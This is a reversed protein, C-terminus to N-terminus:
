RLLKQLARVEPLVDRVAARERARFETCGKAVGALVKVVKKPWAGARPDKYEHMRDFFERDDFLMGVVERAPLGMLLELLVVGFSYVDTRSSLQGHDHYEPAMYGRTGVNPLVFSCPRAHSTHPM